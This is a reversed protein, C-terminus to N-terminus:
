MNHLNKNSYRRQHRPTKKRINAYSQAAQDCYGGFRRNNRKIERSISTHSRNLRRGIERLSLGMQLLYFLSMRERANLHTYSM